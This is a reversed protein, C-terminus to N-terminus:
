NKSILITSMDFEVKKAINIGALRGTAWASQLNFGGTLGDIDLVEGALYLNSNLKSQMTKNSVESLCVGGATVFEDGKRRSILTLEIDSSLLNCIENRENKSVEASKKDKPINAMILLEEVFSKPLLESLTNFIQKAGNNSILTMLKRDYSDFHDIASPNLKIKKPSLKSIELFALHASLAFVVPGSVGFHTCLLPGVVEKKKEGDLTFTLKANPFSLGSLRKIWDEKIEFSNLSPGLSTITHGCAKAFDYGDGTSGTHKYANGGSTIVVLDFNYENKNTVIIFQENFSRLEKVTELLHLKVMQNKNFIKYFLNVVDSGIDSKPFVRLDKEIKLPVGNRQFWDMVDRPSFASLAPILFKSGRIYNSLLIKKETIGTTVNCRGGGSISVKKGLVENKEFLYIEANVKEEVLTSATMLGAAGGGIIAIKM